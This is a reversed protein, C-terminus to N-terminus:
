VGQTRKARRDVSDKYVNWVNGVKFGDLQGKQLMVHVRQRSLGLIEAAQTISVLEKAM